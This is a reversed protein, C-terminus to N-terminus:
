FQAINASGQNSIARKNLAWQAAGLVQRLFSLYSNRAPLQGPKDACTCSLPTHLNNEHNVAVQYQMMTFLARETSSM